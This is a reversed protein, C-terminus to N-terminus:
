KNLLKVANKTVEVLLAKDLDDFCKTNSVKDYNEMIFDMTFAKLQWSEFRSAVQLIYAANEIEISEKIVHECLAKLRDLKFYNAAGIIEIARDPSHLSAEDTYIYKLVDLFIDYQVDALTVETDKSEKLGRFFMAKFHESRAALITKHAFIPKGEVLFTIDALEKNNVLKAFDGLYTSGPVIITQAKIRELHRQAEKIEAESPVILDSYAVSMLSEVKVNGKEDKMVKVLRDKFPTVLIGNPKLLNYLKEIQSEPCCAGVHIRDFKMDNPFPLFCNRVVFEVNSFDLGSSESLKKV